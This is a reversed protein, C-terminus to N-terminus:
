EDEGSLFGELKSGKAKEHGLTKIIDLITSATRNAADTHKPLERILPHAYVNERNKVYEKEILLDSEEDLAERMKAIVKQQTEYQRLQAKFLPNKDVGYDKAMKLLAAYTVNKIGKM